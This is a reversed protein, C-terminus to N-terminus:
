KRLVQRTEVDILASILHLIFFAYALNGILHMCQDRTHVRTLNPGVVVQLISFFFYSILGYAWSLNTM